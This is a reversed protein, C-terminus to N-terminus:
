ASDAGLLVTNMTAAAQAGEAAAVIALRALRSADGAVYLGPVNTTEFEGTAVSGDGTFECGLRAALQSRQRQASVFFLADCPQQSGDDFLIGDLRRDGSLGAIRQERVDIGNDELRRYQDRHLMAPGDTCLAVQDSWVRLELPLGMGATSRGYAAIPRDAVEYGDCYPCHFVGRGYLEEAGSIPPLDDVVGTALLLLQCRVADGRTVTVEFGGEDCARAATIRAMRLEVTPYEALQQRAIDRLEGPDIGDRSLFGNM